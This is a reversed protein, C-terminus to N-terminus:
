SQDPRAGTNRDIAGEAEAGLAELGSIDLFTDLREVEALAAPNTMMEIGAAEGLVQFSSQIVQPGEHRIAEVAEARCDSLMLRNFTAATAQTAAVRDEETARVLDSLAPNSSAALFTWRLLAQRDATTTSRVFCRSLDDAFVGGVAPSVGWIGLLLGAALYSTRM